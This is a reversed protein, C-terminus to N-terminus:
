REDEGEDEGKATMASTRLGGDKVEVNGLRGYGGCDFNNSGVGRKSLNAAGGYSRGDVAEPMKRGPWVLFPSPGSRVM